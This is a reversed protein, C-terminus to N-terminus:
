GNGNIVPWKKELHLSVISGTPRPLSWACIRLVCPRTKFPRPGFKDYPHSLSLACANSCLTALGMKSTVRFVAQSNGLAWPSQWIGNWLVSLETWYFQILSYMSCYLSDEQLFRLIFFSGSFCPHLGPGPEGPRDRWAWSGVASMWENM